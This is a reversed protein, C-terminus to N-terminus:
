SEVFGDLDVQYYQQLAKWAPESRQQWYGDLEAIHMAVGRSFSAFMEPFHM